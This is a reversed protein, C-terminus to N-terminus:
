SCTHTHAHVHTSQNCGIRSGVFWLFTFKMAYFDNTRSERFWQIPEFYVSILMDYATRLLYWLETLRRRRTHSSRILSFRNHRTCRSAFVMSMTEFKSRYFRRALLHIWSSVLTLEMSASCEIQITSGIKWKKKNRTKRTDSCVADVVKRKEVNIEM